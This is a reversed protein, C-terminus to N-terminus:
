SLEWETEGFRVVQRGPAASFEFETWDPKSHREWFEYAAEIASWLKRPGGQELSRKGGPGPQHLEAWSGDHSALGSLDHGDKGTAWYRRTGPVFLQAVFAFAPDDLAEPGIQAYGSIYDGAYGKEEPGAHRSPMFGAWRSLFRGRATRDEGVTALLMAGGVLGTLNALILGGPRTQEIWAAPIVPLGCTAVVRDYPAGPPYGNRGDGTVVAPAYGADALRARASETLQPDIDISTVQDDGLREALLAANYGSGTGVELVRHADRLDLTQLMWAMLGPMTSSSTHRGYGPGSAFAQEVPRGDVQILLTTDSYVERLWSDYQAPSTSSVLTYRTGAPAQGTRAFHPVFVHRPVQAFIDQWQKDTIDGAEALAAAMDAALQRAQPHDGFRDM